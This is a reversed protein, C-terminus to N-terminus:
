RIPKFAICIRARDPCAIYIICKCHRDRDGQGFTPCRGFQDPEIIFPHRLHDLDQNFLIKLAERRPGTIFVAVCKRM